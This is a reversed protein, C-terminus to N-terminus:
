LSEKRIEIQEICIMWGEVEGSVCCYHKHKILINQDHYHGKM